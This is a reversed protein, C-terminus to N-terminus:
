SRQARSRGQYEVHLLHVQAALDDDPGDVVADSLIEGIPLPRVRGAPIGM